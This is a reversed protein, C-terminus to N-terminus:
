SVRTGGRRGISTISMTGSGHTKMCSWYATVKPVVQGHVNGVRM